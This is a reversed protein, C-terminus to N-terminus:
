AFSVQTVQALWDVSDGSYSATITFSDGTPTGTFNSVASGASADTARYLGIDTLGSFTIVPSSPDTQKQYFSGSVPQGVVLNTITLKGNSMTM